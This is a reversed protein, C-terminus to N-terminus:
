GAPRRFSGSAIARRFGRAYAFVLVFPVCLCVPLRLPNLSWKAWVLLLAVAAILGFAAALGGEGLIVAVLAAMSALLFAFCARVFLRRFAFPGIRHVEIRDRFEEPHRAALLADMEYRRAWRLPDLFRPHEVPHTVHVSSERGEKADADELTFGLDSDERFYIGRGADFFEECYGGVKEFLSRRVFLNTPLYHLHDPDPRRSPRGDPRVTAGELVDIAPEGELRAAARELWDNAPLCDDETFALYDGSAVQAALNRAAGPGRRARSEIARGGLASLKRSIEAAPAAGDFSVLIEFRSRSFTQRALADLLPVLKSPDGRTPVVVSFLPNREIM